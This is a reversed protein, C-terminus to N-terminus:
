VSQLQACMAQALTWADGPWRASLYDGDEVIFGANRREATAYRPIIPGTEFRGQPGVARRAEQEVTEAFTRYHDGLAARTLLISFREMFGTLSTTRRGALLPSGDDKTARALPLVGHCIAVVLKGQEFAERGIHQVEASECYRRMGPAHGGPFLVADFDAMHAADWRISAAFAASAAMEAYLARNPAHARLSRAHRPLGEGTLTVPDCTAPAGSESAFTITHGAQTLAAWPVAVETPDFDQQPLLILIAAM